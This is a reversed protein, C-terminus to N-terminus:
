EAELPADNKRAADLIALRLRCADGADVEGVVAASARGSGGAAVTM